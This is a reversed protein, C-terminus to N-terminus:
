PTVIDTIECVYMTHFDKAPYHLPVLSADLFSAEELPQAFLKRGVVTLSAEKFFVAGNEVYPTLNAEAFKDCDRGSLRGCLKLAERCRAPDFFSLTIQDQADIFEKTYRQPRIFCFFVNKNWLVGMGGWSPLSPVWPKIRIIPTVLPFLCGTKALAKFSM